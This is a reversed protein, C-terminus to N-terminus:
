SMRAPVKPEGLLQDGELAGAQGRRDQTEKVNGCKHHRRM